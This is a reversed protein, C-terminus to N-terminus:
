HTAFGDELHETADVHMGQGLLETLVHALRAALGLTLLIGLAQLDDLSETPAPVSGLPHHQRHDRNQWRIQTRENREVTAAERGAVQVVKVTAYDVAVVAQLPQELQVRRLDDDPVLTAHELLGDVGQEVVAPAALRDGTWILTRELAERVHELALLPSEPLVQEALAHIVGTTRHDHDTRRELQVLATQRLLHRELEELREDVVLEFLPAVNVGDLARLLHHLALTGLHPVNQVLHDLLVGNHEVA